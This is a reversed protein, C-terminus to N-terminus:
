KKDADTFEAGRIPKIKTGYKEAWVRTFAAGFLLIQVSYYVWLLVVVLSGAAGYASAVTSRGLYFGLLFKGLDFLLATMSAGIWADRWAITVDPLVKLILAFLLAFLCLSVLFDLAHWFAAHAPVIGSMYKAAGDLVASVILSVLLLFGIGLLMAFSLLRNKVFNRVGSGPKLRVNWVANLSTQLQIFVSSAGVFLAVLGVATAFVGARPKDAAALLSQVAQGGTPGILGSLEGFLERRAAEEGFFFGALALVLMFLPAIAFITFFAVGAGLSSAAGDNWISFTEGILRWYKKAKAYGHM